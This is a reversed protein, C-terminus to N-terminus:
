KKTAVFCVADLEIHPFGNRDYDGFQDFYPNMDSVSENNLQILETKMGSTTIDSRLAANGLIDRLSGTNNDIVLVVAGAQATLLTQNLLRSAEAEGLESLLYSFTFLKSDRFQELGVAVNEASCDMESFTVTPQSCGNLCNCAATKVINATPKWTADLDVLNVQLSCQSYSEVYHRLIGLLDSGPGAGFSTVQLSDGQYLTAIRSLSHKSYVACARSGAYKFLYAFKTAQDSYDIDIEALNGYKETLRNLADWIATDRDCYHNPLDDYISKLADKIVSYIKM